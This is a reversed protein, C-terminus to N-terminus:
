NRVGAQELVVRVASAFGAAFVTQGDRTVVRDDGDLQWGWDKLHSPDIAQQLAMRQLPTLQVAPDSPPGKLRQLAPTAEAKTAPGLAGFGRQQRRLSVLESLLIGLRTRLTADRVGELIADVESPPRKRTPRVGQQQKYADILARYREAAETRLYNETPGGKASSLRAITAISFDHSGRSVQESCVEDIVRLSRVSKPYTTCLQQLLAAASTPPAPALPLPAPPKM